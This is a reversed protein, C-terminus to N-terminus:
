AQLNPNSPKTDFRRSLRYRASREGALCDSDFLGVLPNPEGAKHIIAEPVEM